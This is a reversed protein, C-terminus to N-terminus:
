SFTCWRNDKLPKYSQVLGLSLYLHTLWVWKPIMSRYIFCSMAKPIICSWAYSCKFCLEHMRYFLQWDLSWQWSSPGCQDMTAPWPLKVHVFPATSRRWLIQNSLCIMWDSQMSTRWPRRPNMWPKGDPRWSENSATRWRRLGLYVWCFTQMHANSPNTSLFHKTISEENSQDLFLTSESVKADLSMIEANKSSLMSIKSAVTKQVNPPKKVKPKPQPPNAPTAGTESDAQLGLASTQLREIESGTALQRAMHNGM